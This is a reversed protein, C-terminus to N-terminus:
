DSVKKQFLSPSVENTSESEGTPGSLVIEPEEFDNKEEQLQEAKASTRRLDVIHSLPTTTVSASASAAGAAGFLARPANYIWSSTTMSILQTKKLNSGVARVRYCVISVQGLTIGVCIVTRVNFM